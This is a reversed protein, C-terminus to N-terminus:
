MTGIVWLMFGDERYARSMAPRKARRHGAQKQLFTLASLDEAKRARSHYQEEHRTLSQRPLKTVYYERGVVHIWGQPLSEFIVPYKARKCHIQKQSFALAGLHLM